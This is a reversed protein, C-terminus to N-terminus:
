LVRRGGPLMEPADSGVTAVLEDLSIPKHFAVGAENENSWVVQGFIEESGWRLLVDRGQRPPLTNLSVRAGSPSIDRLEGDMRSAVSILILRQGAEIRRYRRRNGFRDSRDKLGTM